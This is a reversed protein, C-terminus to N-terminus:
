PVFGSFVLMRCFRRCCLEGVFHAEVHVSIGGIIRCFIVHLRMNTSVASFHVRVIGTLRRSGWSCFRAHWQDCFDVSIYMVDSHVFVTDCKNCKQSYSMVGARTARERQIRTHTHKYYVCTSGRLKNIAKHVTHICTETRTRCRCRQRSRKCSPDHEIKRTYYAVDPYFDVQWIM